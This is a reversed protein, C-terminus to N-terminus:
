LQPNSERNDPHPQTWSTWAFCTDKPAQSIFIVCVGKKARKRTIKKQYDRKFTFLRQVRQVYRIFRPKQGATPSKTDGGPQVDRPCPRVCRPCPRPRGVEVRGVCGPQPRKHGGHGAWTRAMDMFNGWFSSVFDSMVSRRNRMPRSGSAPGRIFAPCPKVRVGGSRNKKIGLATRCARPSRRIPGRNVWRPCRRPRHRDPRRPKFHRV